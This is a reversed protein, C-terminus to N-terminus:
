DPAYFEGNIKVISKVYRKSLYKKFLYGKSQKKFEKLLIANYKAENELFYKKFKYKRKHEIKFLNTALCPIITQNVAIFKAGIATDEWQAFRFCDDFGGVINVIDRQIMLNSTTIMNALSWCEIKKGFGFNKFNNTKNILNIVKKKRLKTCLLTNLNVGCRFDNLKKIKIKSQLIRNNAINSDTIDITQYFSLTIINKFNQHRFLHQYLYDPELVVDSDLFLLYKRKSFACGVNRSVAAGFNRTNNIIVVDFNLKFNILPEINKIGDNIIVTEIAKFNINKQYNISLLTKKINEFNDFYPIIISLTTYKDLESNNIKDLVLDRSYKTRFQKAYKSYDNSKSKIIDILANNM